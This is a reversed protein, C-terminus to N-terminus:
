NELKANIEERTKNSFTMRERVNTRFCSTFSSIVWVLRLASEDTAVTKKLQRNM